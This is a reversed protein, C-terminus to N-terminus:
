LSRIPEGFQQEMTMVSPQTRMVKRLRPVGWVLWKWYERVWPALAFTSRGGFLRDISIIPVEGVRLGALQAKIALEFAVSWGVSAPELYIQELAARRIMKIGTTMDTLSSGTMWRVLRNAFRSLIGGLSSSGLRRGGRAYRTCSVLDCGHDMLALMENIALVPGTDDVAFILIYAGQAAQVGARIANAVGCGLRNHILRVQPYRDQLTRVAPVTSDDPEDYIVLIEHPVEIVAALIKLMVPLHVGEDKVPMLISLKLPIGPHSAPPQM